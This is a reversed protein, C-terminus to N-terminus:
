GIFSFYDDLSIENLIKMAEETADECTTWNLTAGCGAPKILAKKNQPRTKNEETEKPTLGYNLSQGQFDKNDYKNEKQENTIVIKEGDFSVKYNKFIGNYLDRITTRNGCVTNPCGSYLFWIQGCHSCKKFTNYQGNFVFLQTMIGDKEILEKFDKLDEITENKFLISQLYIDDDFDNGNDNNNGEVVEDDIAEANLIKKLEENLKEVLNEQYDKFAFYLARKLEKENTKKVEDIFIKKSKRFTELYEKRKDLADFSIGGTNNDTLQKYLEETVNIRDEINKTKEVEKTIKENIETPNTSLKTFILNKIKYKKFIKEIDAQNKMAMDETNTIVIAVNKSYNRFMIFMQNFDRIIDDYRPGYKIVFCILRVPITSLVTQQAKLHKAFDIVTNLGPFDIILNNGRLSRAFQADRTCSYGSNETPFNKGSIKNLLTTKGVGVSGFLIVNRDSAKILELNDLVSKPDRM